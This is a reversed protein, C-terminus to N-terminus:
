KPCIYWGRLEGTCGMTLWHAYTSALAPAGSCTRMIWTSAESAISGASALGMDCFPTANEPGFLIVDNMVILPNEREEEDKESLYFYDLSMRPVATEKEETKVGKGKKRHADNMGRGMVCYKCWLRYPLHSKRHDEVQKSTPQGPDPSMRMPEVEDSHEINVEDKDEGSKEEETSAIM